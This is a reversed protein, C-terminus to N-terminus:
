LNVKRDDGTAELYKQNLYLFGARTAFNQIAGSLRLQAAAWDASSIPRGNYYDGFVRLTAKGATLPDAFLKNLKAQTLKPGFLWNGGLNAIPGKGSGTAHNAWDAVVKGLQEQEVASMGDKLNRRMVRKWLDLRMVGLADWARQSPLPKTGGLIGTPHSNPGIDLGSTRALPYMPDHEAIALERAIYGKAGFFGSGPIGTKYTKIIGKVLAAYPVASGTFPRFFLDGAHTVPFVVGHGLTALTRPLNIATALMRAPKGMAAIRTSNAAAAQAIRSEYQAKWLKSAFAKYPTKKGSLIDGIWQAKGLGGYMQQNVTDWMNEIPVGAKLHPEMFKWMQEADQKTAPNGKSYCAM